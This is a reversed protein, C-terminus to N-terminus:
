SKLRGDSRRAEHSFHTNDPQAYGRGQVGDAQQVGDKRQDTFALMPATRCQTEM